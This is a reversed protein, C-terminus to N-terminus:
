AKRQMIAAFFGDTGHLDPRLRLMGREDVADTPCVPLCQSADVLTFEPHLELFREVQTENEERLFSCTAYVLRGAPRVCKAAQALISSQELCLRALQEPSQRWKLDPNRRLTGLGTCPADVLVRHAKGALRAVRDDREHRIVVPHINSLGSRAFRPKARALRAASVDFAYLRGTSRMMAGLALTKGGAGACFDIVMEGRKPALLHALMQSGEDQVEIVGDTFLQWRNIPPHGSLRIGEPSYPTAQATFRSGQLQAQIEELVAQREGKLVNVRLDVPASQLLSDAYGEPESLQKLGAEVWDPVSFRLGFSLSQREIQESQSVWALQEPSLVAQRSAQDLTAYLGYVALTAQLSGSGTQAYHRYRRLHRLVDFVAEAVQGRDRGGMGPNARFYKSLLVDAPQQWMLIQKLVETVQEVRRSGASDSLVGQSGRARGSRDKRKYGSRDAKVPRSAAGEFPTSAKKM